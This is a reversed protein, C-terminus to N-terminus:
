NQVKKVQCTAIGDAVKFLVKLTRHCHNENPAKAQPGGGSGHEDQSAQSVKRSM